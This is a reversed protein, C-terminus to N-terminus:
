YGEQDYVSNFEKLLDNISDMMYDVKEPTIFQNNPLYIGQHHILDAMPQLDSKYTRAKFVPQNLLNGAVVPRTEIKKTWLNKLVYDREGKTNFIIPLCFSSTEDFSVKQTKLGLQNIKELFRRHNNKRIEIWRDLKRLQVLGISANLDTSRLNYGMIDFIFNKDPLHSYNDARMTRKVWGHSRTSKLFDYNQFSDTLIMGGEITTMHHGFYFSLSGMAGFTGVNKGDKKAGMSECCDELLVLGKENCYRKIEVIDASQGLLHVVFVGKTKESTMRKISELSINFTEDVDCFVPVLNNQIIPYITTPWTVSPVLIEDGDRLGYITKLLDIMLLNASSGSNVMVGYRSGNWHAVKKEFEDVLDWQTYQGSRLCENIAKIEEETFSDEMLKITEM